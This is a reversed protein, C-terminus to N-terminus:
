VAWLGFLFAVLDLKPNETASKAFEVIADVDGATTDPSITCVGGSFVGSDCADHLGQDVGHLAGALPVLCAFLTRKRAIATPDTFWKFFKSIMPLRSILQRLLVGKGFNRLGM